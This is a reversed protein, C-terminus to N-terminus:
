YFQYSTLIQALIHPNFLTSPPQVLHMVDLFIQHTKVDHTMIHLIRDFYWNAWRVTWAPPRTHSSRYRYDQNTALMWATKHATALQRQLDAALPMQHAPLAQLAASLIHAELAAVTMGQGYAPNFACAAHGVVLLNQPYPQLRDYARLRNASDRYAYISNVPVAQGLLDYVVSTPLSHAFALFAAEDTPPYDRDGSMLGVIWQNDEIPYIMAGRCRDPPHMMVYLARWDSQWQPPLHYTRNAYGVHADLITEAPPPFSIQQLWKPTQSQKGSADIVWDAPIPQSTGDLRSRAMVQAVRTQAADSRWGTVTCDPQFRIQPVQSLRQRIQWDLLDRSFSIQQLQSQFPLAWGTPTLLAVDAGADFCPAGAQLLEQTLGPFLQELILRGQTLLVHLFRSQPVGPRPTPQEPYRDREVITVQECHDALVRAMLLGALSGGIVVAHGLQAM